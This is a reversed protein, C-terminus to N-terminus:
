YNNIDALLGPLTKLRVGNHGAGYIPSMAVMGAGILIVALVAHRLRPNKLRFLARAAAGALGYFIAGYVICHLANVAFTIGEHFATIAIFFLPLFGAVVILFYFCPFVTAFVAFITWKAQRETM